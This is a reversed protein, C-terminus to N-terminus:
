YRSRRIEVYEEEWEGDEEMTLKMPVVLPSHKIPTVVSPFRYETDEELQMPTVPGPSHVPMLRPSSPFYATYTQSFFFNERM